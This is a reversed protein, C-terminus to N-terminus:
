LSERALNISVTFMVQVNGWMGKSKIQNVSKECIIFINQILSGINVFIKLPFQIVWIQPAIDSRTSLVDLVRGPHLFNGENGWKENNM